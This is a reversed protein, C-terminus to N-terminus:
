GCAMVPENGGLVTTTGGTVVALGAFSSSEARWDGVNPWAVGMSGGRNSLEAVSVLRDPHEYPLPRLLIGRVVSFIATNAGIGLALTVVAVLAFGPSRLLTRLGFKLDRRFVGHGDGGQACQRSRMIARCGRVVGDGNGILRAAERRAESPAWGQVGAAGRRSFCKRTEGPADSVRLCRHTHTPNSHRSSSDARSSTSPRCPDVCLNWFDRVEELVDPNM